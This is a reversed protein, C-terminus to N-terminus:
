NPQSCSMEFTVSSSFLNRVEYLFNKLHFVILRGAGITKRYFEILDELFYYFCVKHREEDIKIIM